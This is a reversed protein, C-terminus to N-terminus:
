ASETACLNVITSLTLVSSEVKVENLLFWDPAYVFFHPRERGM